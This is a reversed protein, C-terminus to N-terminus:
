VGCKVVGLLIFGFGKRVKMDAEKLRRMRTALDEKVGPKAAAPAPAQSPAYSSSASSAASSASSASAASGASSTSCVSTDCSSGSDTKEREQWTREKKSNPSFIKTVAKSLMGVVGSATGGAKKTEEQKREKERQM